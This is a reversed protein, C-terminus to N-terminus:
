PAVGKLSALQIYIVSLWTSSMKTWHRVFCRKKGEHFRESVDPYETFYFRDGLDASDRFLEALSTTELLKRRLDDLQSASYYDLTEDDYVGPLDYALHLFLFQESRMEDESM